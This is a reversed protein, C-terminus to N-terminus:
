WPSSSPRSWGCSRRALELRHEGLIGVDVADHREGMAAAAAHRRGAELHVHQAARERAVRAMGVHRRHHHQPEAALGVLDGAQHVGFSQLFPRLQDRHGDLVLAAHGLGHHAGDAEQLLQQGLGVVDLALRDRGAFQDQRQLAAPRVAIGADGGIGRQARRDIQQHTMASRRHQRLRRLDVAGLMQQRPARDAALDALLDHAADFPPFVMARAGAPLHVVIGRGAVLRAPERVM